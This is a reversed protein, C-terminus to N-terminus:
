TIINEADQILILDREMIKGGIVEGGQFCEAQMIKSFESLVSKPNSIGARFIDGLLYKSDEYTKVKLLSNILEPVKTVLSPNGQLLKVIKRLAPTKSVDIIEEAFPIFQGIDDLFTSRIVHLQTNEMWYEIDPLAESSDILLKKYDGKATHWLQIGSGSYHKKETLVPPTGYSSVVVTSSSVQWLNVVQGLYDISFVVEQAKNTENTRERIKREHNLKMDKLLESTFIETNADIITHHTPCLVILNVCSDIESLALKDNYRPGDSSRSHIHAEEGLVVDYEESDLVLQQVCTPYACINGSRAWLLKRDRVSISM